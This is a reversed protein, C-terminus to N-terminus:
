VRARKNEQDHHTDFLFTALATAASVALRGHRPYLGKVKGSKGHGTGYLNRLESLSQVLTALNGLLAKIAKSGKAEDPVGEPVLKLEEATKRVLPHVDMKEDFPIKRETLITKCCTELLEKASGIAQAPDADVAREIRGIQEHLHAADFRVAVDRVATLKASGTLPLITGEAYAYGDRKLFSGFTKLQQAVRQRVEEDITENEAILHLRSLINEYVALLKRVDGASTFDLSHYYQEILTRREGGASPAYDSDCVVDASDFEMEIERLTFDRVLFERFEYRTKKSILDSAM